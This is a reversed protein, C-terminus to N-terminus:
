AISIDQASLAHVNNLHAFQITSFGGSNGDADYYLNGTSSNFIIRDSADLAYTLGAGSAFATSALGGIGLASFVTHDLVLREGSAYDTVSDVADLADFIFTDYGRGGSLLDIGGGGILTDNGLGGKIVDNGGEGSLVNNGANGTLLNALGNGTGGINGTGGLTLNEVDNGLVWEVTSMVRDIGEGPHEIVLDGASNVVYTDNGTGGILTDDGGLGDLRNAFANGTLQNNAANGTANAARGTLTLNELHDGLAHSISSVITDDGEGALEIVRDGISDIVYIDDGAGGILWDNGRGGDLTNDVANGTLDNDLANGTGNINGVGTLVLHEIHNGLSFGVGSYVTDHGGGAVEIVQDGVDDVWYLDNGTGGILIDAGAAGDLTDNGVGGNLTNSGANGLLRNSRLNGSGDIDAGGILELHEFGVGLAFTVSSIVRDMGFGMVEIVADNLDDVVYIDDGGGGDLTDGGAGGDLTNNGSNGTISNALANGAGDIHGTGLLILNEVEAELSYGFAVKVLDIGEGGGEIVQDGADDLFYTDDGNGGQMTDMGLGGNLINNGANGIIFNDMSNGTGNIANIGTLMLSEFNDGLIWTVSSRVQDDGAGAGETVTDLLSDVIYVDDGLGGQMTDNGLDGDLLNNGSNGNLTNNLVNGTGDISGTGTLTLNELYAGMVFGVQSYVLDIGASSVETVTDGADDVYYTDNGSGGSLADAGLGGDLVNNGANGQILNSLDNGYANIHSAGLLFLNEFAPTIAWSVYSQITDTGDGVYESVFDGVNDVVYTDDGPGGQMTDVGGGGNLVNSAANGTIYDAYATGIVNEITVGYAIATTSGKSGHHIFSGVNIDITLGYGFASASLTDVGGADWITKVQGDDSLVYTDNGTRYSMNAGYIYQIALIDLPMPTSQYGHPSSYDVPDNYSMVTWYGDDYGGIGLESFTPKGNGGDDFPHKLGLVHGIEHLAIEFGEGGPQLYSFGEYVENIFLDGEPNPYFSRSVGLDALFTDGWATDPFIGAAAAGYENLIGSAPAIAIDASSQYSYYGSSIQTFRIDVVAAWAALVQSVTTSYASTWSFGSTEYETHNLSYTLVTTPKPSWSGGEILGDIRPDGSLAVSDNVPTAM